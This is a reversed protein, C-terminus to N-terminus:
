PRARNAPSGADREGAPADRVGKSQPSQPSQPPLTLGIDALTAMEDLVRVAADIIPFFLAAGTGEGLRLGFDFYPEVGIHELLLRHGPEVSVHSGILYNRVGAHLHHGLHHEV